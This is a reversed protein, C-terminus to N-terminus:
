AFTKSQIWSLCIAQSVCSKTSYFLFQQKQLYFREYLLYFYHIYCELETFKGIQKDLYNKSKENDDSM